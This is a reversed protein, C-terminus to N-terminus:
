PGHHIVHSTALGLLLSNVESVAPFYLKSIAAAFTAFFAFDFWVFANGLVSSVIVRRFKPRASDDPADGAMVCRLIKDSTALLVMQLGIWNKETPAEQQM